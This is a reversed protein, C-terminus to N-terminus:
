RKIVFQWAFADGGNGMISAPVHKGAATLYVTDTTAAPHAPVPMPPMAEYSEYEDLPPIPASDM